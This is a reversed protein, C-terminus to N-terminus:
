HLTRREVVWATLQSRSGLGLKRLIKAVHNAVTYESISLETAIQRNTLGQAVLCAIEEQRRTLPAPRTGTPPSGPVSPDTLLAPKGGSLAYEVAEGVSMASGKAWAASFTAKNLRSRVADVAQEHLSRDQVYAYVAGGAAELSAEAAGFLRAAHEPEEQATAVQALGELCYAINAKDGAAASSRLGEAYLEAAREYDGQSQAAMALGYLATSGALKNGIERSLELGEEFYRAAQKYDGQDLYISGLHGLAGSAGWKEGTKRGLEIAEEYLSIAREADGRQMLVAAKLGLTYALGSKDGVGRFLTVAEQCIRELQEPRGLGYYTSARVWLAKARAHATLNAGKALAAEIWRRGESQHGHILWFIWLSWAMRVAAEVEGEELLWAMAARLNDNDEDLGKLWETQGPGKLEPEAREALDLFFKAHRRGVAEAEGGEELKERAYQRVPELLRYRAGSEWSEEAVVLSKDVQMTLLDLVDEEEIAGGAGVSEAAELTFGGAFASLRRFLVQEHEGLLEYSWDLTARLTQHRHDATRDGRTLLKLSHGLRESIQKASLMGVRVAALEIALPIGELRACVQAVATANEPTLEFGPHRNSARDVFLRASEFGELEEVTPLHQTGPTSLSPVPWSLEGRVGLPERSTALVRLRPCSDLLVEALHAAAHILHECNDLILLMEKDRLADLLTEILPRGPQERVGLTAAVAQPLLAGDSLPALEVLWGGDPYIGVLDRAAELALRTKGCGGTGTLTLLDTMALTRKVEVMERERGVFNTRAAPLNHNGADPPEEPPAALQPPSFRGAAIEDRLRRTAASPETGLRGSLTEGLREYQALAQAQRDLLAYLRMLGAHAEELIPEEAVAKRLTEVALAHEEHDEYLRALEVLLALYLQRLEERRNEVWEEYRDEPLLDGTYLDLAARYAAQGRLRRGTAAEEEFAEVDVWLSGGPCLVIREDDSALHYRSGVTLDSTLIRRAAHVTQRLNNSAAKKGLDPWLLNMVQERHLHHGPALALLKVLAAAKRLRWASGEITRSGVSARFGGLLWVRVAEPREGTPSGSRTVGKSGSPRM